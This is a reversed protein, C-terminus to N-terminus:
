VMNEFDTFDLDFPTHADVKDKVWDRRLEVDDDDTGDLANYTDVLSMDQRLLEIFVLLKKKGLWKELKHARKIANSKRHPTTHFTPDAHTVAVLPAATSPGAARAEAAVAADMSASMRAMVETFDAASAVMGELARAGSSTRPQKRSPM